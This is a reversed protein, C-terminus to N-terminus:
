SKECYGCVGRCTEAFYDKECMREKRDLPVHEGEFYQCNKVSKIMNELQFFAKSDNCQHDGCANCTKPCHSRAGAISNCRKFTKRSAIWKCGMFRQTNNNYFLTTSDVCNESNLITPSTSPALSCPEKCTSPCYEKVISAECREETNGRRAWECRKM